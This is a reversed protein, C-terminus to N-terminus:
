GGACSPQPALTSVALPAAVRVRSSAGGKMGLQAAASPALSMFIAPNDVNKAIIISAKKGTELNEVEVISNLPFSNCAGFLGDSTFENSSSIVASGEWISAATAIFALVVFGVCLVLRKMSNGGTISWLGILWPSEVGPKDKDLFSSGKDGSLLAIFAKAVSSGMSRLNADLKKNNELSDAAVDLVDKGLVRGDSVRLVRYEFSVPRNKLSEVQSPGYRVLIYLIYDM